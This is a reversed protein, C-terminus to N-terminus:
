YFSFLPSRRWSWYNFLNLNIYLFLYVIIFWCRFLECLILLNEDVGDPSPTYVFHRYGEPFRYAVPPKKIRRKVREERTNVEISSTERVSCVKRHETWHQKQHEAGCYYIQKCRSCRLLTQQTSSKACIACTNSMEKPIHDKSNWFLSSFTFFLPFLSLFMRFSASGSRSMVSVADGYLVYVDM